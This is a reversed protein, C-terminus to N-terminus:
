NNECHAPREGALDVGSGSDAMQAIPRQRNNPEEIGSEEAEVLTKGIAELATGVQEGLSMRAITEHRMRKKELLTWESLDRLAHEWNTNREEAMEKLSRMSQYMLDLKAGRRKLRGLEALSQQLKVQLDETAKLKEQLSTIERQLATNVPSEVEQIRPPRHALDAITQNATELQSIFQKRESQLREKALKAEAEASLLREGADAATKRALNTEDQASLAVARLEELERVRHAATNSLKANEQRLAEFASAGQVLLTHLMQTKRWLYWSLFALLSSATTAIYAAIM